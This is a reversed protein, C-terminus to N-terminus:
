FLHIMILHSINKSNMCVPFGALFPQKRTVCPFGTLSMLKQFVRLSLHSFVQFFLTNHFQAWEKTQSKLTKQNDLFAKKRYSKFIKNNQKSSESESQCLTKTQLISWLSVTKKALSPSFCSIIEVGPKDIFPKCNCKPADM